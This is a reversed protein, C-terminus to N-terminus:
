FTLWLLGRGKYNIQLTELVSFNIFTGDLNIGRDGSSVSPHHHYDAFGKKTKMYNDKM